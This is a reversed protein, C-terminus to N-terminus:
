LNPESILPDYPLSLSRLTLPALALSPTLPSPFPPFSLFILLYSILFLSLFLSLFYSILSPFLGIPSILQNEGVTIGHSDLDRLPKRKRTCSGAAYVLCQIM